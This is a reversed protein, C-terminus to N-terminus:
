CKRGRPRAGAEAQGQPECRPMGRHTRPRVECAVSRSGVIQPPSTRSSVLRGPCGGTARLISRGGYWSCEIEGTRTTATQTNTSREASRGACCTSRREVRRVPNSARDRWLGVVSASRNEAVVLHPIGVLRIWVTGITAVRRPLAMALEQQCATKGDPVM